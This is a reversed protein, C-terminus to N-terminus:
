KRVADIISYLWLGLMVFISLGMMTLFITGDAVILLTYLFLPMSFYFSLLLLLGKNSEGKIIQGLGVVFFSCAGCIIKAM